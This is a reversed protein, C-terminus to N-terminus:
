LVELFVLSSSARRYVLCAMSVLGLAATHMFLNPFQFYSVQNDRSPVLFCLDRKMVMSFSWSEGECIM